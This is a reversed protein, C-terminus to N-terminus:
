ERKGRLIEHPTWGEDWVSDMLGDVYAMGIAEWVDQSWSWCPDESEAKTVLRAKTVQIGREVLEALPYGSDCFQVSETM